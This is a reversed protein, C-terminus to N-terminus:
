HVGLFFCKFLGVSLCIIFSKFSLVSITLGALSFCFKTHLPNETFNYDSKGSFAIPLLFCLTPQYLWFVLVFYFLVFQWCLLRCETVELLSPAPHPLAHRYDCCKPTQPLLIRILELNYQGVLATNHSETEFHVFLCFFVFNFSFKLCKWTFLLQCLRNAYSRGQLFHELSGRPLTLPSCVSVWFQIFFLFSWCVCYMILLPLIM